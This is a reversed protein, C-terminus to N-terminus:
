QPIYYEKKMDLKLGSGSRSIHIGLEYHKCFDLIVTLQTTKLTEDTNVQVEIIEDDEIKCKLNFNENRILTSFTDHVNQKNM